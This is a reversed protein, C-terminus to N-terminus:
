KWGGIPHRGQRLFPDSITIQIGTTPFNQAILDTFSEHRDSLTGSRKTYNPKNTTQNKSRRANQLNKTNNNNNFYSPRGRPYNNRTQPMHTQPISTIYRNSKYSTNQNQRHNTSVNSNNNAGNTDNMKDNDRPLDNDFEQKTYWDEKKKWIEESLEEEIKCFSQWKSSLLAVVEKNSPFNEEIKNAIQQDISEFQQKHNKAHSTM